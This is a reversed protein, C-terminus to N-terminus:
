KQPNKTVDAPSQFTRLIRLGHVSRDPHVFGQLKYTTDGVVVTIDWGSLLPTDLLKRTGIELARQINQHETSLAESPQQEQRPVSSPFLSRESDVM